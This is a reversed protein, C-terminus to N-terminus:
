SIKVIKQCQGPSRKVEIMKGKRMNHFCALAAKSAIFRTALQLAPTIMRWVDFKKGEKTDFDDLAGNRAALYSPNRHNPRRGDKGQERLRRLRM